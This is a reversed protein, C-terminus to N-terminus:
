LTNMFDTGAGADAFRISIQFFFTSKLQNHEGRVLKQEIIAVHPKSFAMEKLKQGRAIKLRPLM